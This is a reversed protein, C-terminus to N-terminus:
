TSLHSSGMGVDAGMERLCIIKHKQGVQFLFVGGLCDKKNLKQKIVKNEINM